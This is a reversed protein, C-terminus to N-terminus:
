PGIIPQLISVPSCPSTAPSFDLRLLCKDKPAKKSVPWWVFVLPLIMSLHLARQLYAEFNGFISTYLHFLGVAIVYIYVTTQLKGSFKRM